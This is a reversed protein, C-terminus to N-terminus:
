GKAGQNYYQESEQINTKKVCCYLDATILLKLNIDSKNLKSTNVYLSLSYTLVIKKNNEKQTFNIALIM